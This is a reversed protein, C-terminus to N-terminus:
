YYELIPYARVLKQIKKGDVLHSNLTEVVIPPGIREMKNWCLSFHFSIFPCVSHFPLFFQTSPTWTWIEKCTM